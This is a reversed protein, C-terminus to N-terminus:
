SLSIKAEQIYKNLIEIFKTEKFEYSTKDQMIWENEKQPSLILYLRDLKCVVPSSSLRTWPLEFNLQKIIGLKLKFPL